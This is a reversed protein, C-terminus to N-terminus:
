QMSYKFKKLFLSIIWLVNKNKVLKKIIIYKISIKNFNIIEKWEDSKYIISTNNIFENKDKIKLASLFLIYSMMRIKYIYLSNRHQDYLKSSVLIDTIAKITDLTSKFHNITLMNTFSHDNDSIHNYLIKNYFLINKSKLISKFVFLADENIRLNDFQIDNDIIFKRSYIKNWIVNKVTGIEFFDKLQDKIEIKNDFLFSQIIQNNNNKLNFGFCIFDYQRLQLFEDLRNFIDTEFEDDVDLFIINEGKTNNIGTNRAVGPGSNAQSIFKVFDYKSSLVQIIDLSNDTSGDNIFLIELNNYNQSLISEFCRQIYKEANYLPVIISYKIM